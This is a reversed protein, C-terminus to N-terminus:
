NGLAGGGGNAIGNSTGNGTGNGMGSGSTGNGIGLGGNWLKLPNGLGWHHKPMGPAVDNSWREEFGGVEGEQMGRLLQRERGQGSTNDYEKITKTGQEGYQRELGAKDIGTSSNSYASQMEKAKKNFDQISSSSYKETQMKGDKDTFGSMAMVSSSSQDM